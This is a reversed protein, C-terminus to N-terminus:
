QVAGGYPTAGAAPAGASSGTPWTVGTQDLFSSGTVAFRQGAAIGTAGTTWNLGATFATANGNLKLLATFTPTNSIAVASAPNDWTMFAHPGLNAFYAASGSVKLLQPMNFKTYGDSQMFTGTGFEGFEIANLKLDVIGFQHGFIGYNIGTCGACDFFINGISVSAYDGVQLGVAGAGTANRWNLCHSATTAGTIYITSASLLAGEFDVTEPYTGCAAQISPTGQNNDVDQSVHIAARGITLFPTALSLGDNTTDSGSNSAFFCAGNGSTFANACVGTGQFPGKWRGPNTVAFAGNIVRVEFSQKPYLITSLYSPFGSLIKGSLADSNVIFITCEADFGATSGPLSITWMGGNWDLTKQCDTSALSRSAGASVRNNTMVGLSAGIALTNRVLGQNLTLAGVGAGGGLSLVGTNNLTPGGSISLGSGLTIGGTAGGLSSVGATAVAAISGLTAKKTANGAADYIIAYDNNANPSAKLTLAPINFNLASSAVSLGVPVTINGWVGAGDTGALENAVGPALQSINAITLSTNAVAKILWDVTGSPQILSLGQQTVGGNLLTSGAPTYPGQSPLAGLGSGTPVVVTTAGGVSVTANTTPNLATTQISSVTINALTGVLPLSVNPLQNQAPLVSQAGGYAGIANPDTGYNLLSLTTSGSTRGVLTRGRLDPVNFTTAGDGNGWLFFTASANTSITAPKDVVVSSGTKSVISTNPPICSAEIKGGIPLRSTDGIGSLTTSTDACVVNQVQTLFTFLAPFSARLVAGGDATLYGAPTAGGPNPIIAGIANGDGVTVVPTSGGSGTSATVLDWITNNFQDKVIQRYSGDGYIPLGPRGSAGLAVPQSQPTTKAADSWVTKGTTTGPTYFYVKGNALSKGNNDMFWQTANPLLTADAALAPAGILAFHVAMLWSLLKKM